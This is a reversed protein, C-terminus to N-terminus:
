GPIKPKVASLAEGCTKGSRTSEFNRVGFPSAPDPQNILATPEAAQLAAGASECLAMAPMVVSWLNVRRLFRSLDAVERRLKGVSM